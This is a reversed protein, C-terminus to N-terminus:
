RFCFPEVIEWIKQTIHVDLFPMFIMPYVLLIKAAPIQQKIRKLLLDVQTCVHNDGMAMLCITTALYYFIIAYFYRGYDVKLIMEPLVTVAGLVVAAYPLLDKGKKGRILQLLFAAGYVIYPLFLVLFVPTEYRNMKHFPYEAEYVDLGLIEHNVLSESFSQGDQSLSKALAVIESYIEEGQFHSFFEFYPFFASISAFTLMFIIIYKVREKGTKKFIKYFLLVLIINANMFVFGQHFIVGIVCLPIILWEAKEAVLLICCLLTIMVLYEDLRGFNEFTLFMPFTFVSLFLILYMTNTLDISKVKRLCRYYFYLLLVFFLVTMLETFRYIANFSMLSFPTIKDVFSWITGMLGRSIFGYKYSFAFITTDQPNIAHGFYRISCLIALGSLVLIFMRIKKRVKLDKMTM